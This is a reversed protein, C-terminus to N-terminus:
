RGRRGCGPCCRSTQCLSSSAIAATLGEVSLSHLLPLSSLPTLVDRLDIAQVAEEYPQQLRISLSQLRSFGNPHLPLQPQEVLRLAGGPQKQQRPQIRLSLHRIRSLLSQLSASRTLAKAVSNRVVLGDESFCAATLRSFAHSVHSLQQLKDRLSLFRLILEVLQLPLLHLSRVRRQLVASLPSSSSASAM